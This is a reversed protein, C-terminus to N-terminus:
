DSVTKVRDLTSHAPVTPRKKAPKTARGPPRGRRRPLGFALKELSLIAQDIADRQERLEALAKAIDM